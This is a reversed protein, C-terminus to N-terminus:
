FAAAPFHEWSGSLVVRGQASLIWTGRISTESVEKVDVTFTGFPRTRHSSMDYFGIPM